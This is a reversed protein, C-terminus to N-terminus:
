IKEFHAAALYFDAAVWGKGAAEVGFHFHAERGTKCTAGFLFVADFHLAEYLEQFCASARHTGGDLLFPLFGALLQIEFAGGGEM